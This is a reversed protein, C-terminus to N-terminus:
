KKIIEYKNLITGICEMVQEEIGNSSAEILMKQIEQFNALTTARNDDEINEKTLHPKKSFIKSFEHKRCTFKHSPDDIYHGYIVDESICDIVAKENVKKSTTFKYPPHKKLYYVQNTKM